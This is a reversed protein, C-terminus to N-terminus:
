LEGAKAPDTAAKAEYEAREMNPFTGLYRGGGWKLYVRFRVQGTGLVVRTIRYHDTNLITSEIM